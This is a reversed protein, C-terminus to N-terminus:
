HSLLFSKLHVAVTKVFSKPLNSHTEALTVSQFVLKLSLDRNCSQSSSCLLLPSSGSFPKDTLLVNLSARPQLQTMLSAGSQVTQQHLPARWISNEALFMYRGSLVCGHINKLNELWLQKIWSLPKQFKKEPLVRFQFLIETVELPIYMIAVM